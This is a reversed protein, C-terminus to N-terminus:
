ESTFSFTSYVIIYFRAKKKFFLQTQVNDPFCLITPCQSVFSLQANFIYKETLVASSNIWSKWTNKNVRAIKFFISYDNKVFHTARVCSVFSKEETKGQSSRFIGSHGQKMKGAPLFSRLKCLCDCSPNSEIYYYHRWVRFFSEGINKKAALFCMKQHSKGGDIRSVLCSTCWVSVSVFSNWGQYWACNATKKIKSERRVHETKKRRRRFFLVFIHLVTSYYNVTSQQEYFSNFLVHPSSRRWRWEM